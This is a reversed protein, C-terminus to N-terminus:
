LLPLLKELEMVRSGKVLVHYGEAKEVKLYEELAKRGNFVHIPSSPEDDGSHEVAALVSEAAASFIPGALLVRDLNLTLIWRILEQHEELSATGMEAMDGLILMLPPDAYQLLGGIAERMSTPNANYADLILHNREGKLFQSRQNEPQYDGVAKIMDVVPVDFLYGVALALRV